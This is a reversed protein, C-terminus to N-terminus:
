RRKLLAAPRRAQWHSIRSGGSWNMIPGREQRWRSLSGQGADDLADLMAVQMLRTANDTWEVGRVLRLAGASDESAIVRSGFLRSAEPERVAVVTEVPYTETM